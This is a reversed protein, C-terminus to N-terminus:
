LFKNFFFYKQLYLKGINLLLKSLIENDLSIKYLKIHEEAKLYCEIAKEPKKLKTFCNGLQNWANLIILAIENNKYKENLFPGHIGYM